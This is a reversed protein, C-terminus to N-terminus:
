SCFRLVKSDTIFDVSCYHCITKYTIKFDNDLTLFKLCVANHMQNFVSNGLRLKLQSKPPDHTM